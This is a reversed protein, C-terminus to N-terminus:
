NKKEEERVMIFNKIEKYKIKIEKVEIMRKLHLNVPFYGSNFVTCWRASPSM